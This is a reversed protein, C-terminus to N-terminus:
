TKFDKINKLPMSTKEIVTGMRLTGTLLFNTTTSEMLDKIEFIILNEIYIKFTEIGLFKRINPIDDKKPKQVEWSEKKM